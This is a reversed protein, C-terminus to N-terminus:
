LGTETPLTVVVWISCLYFCLMICNLLFIYTNDYPCHPPHMKALCVGQTGVASIVIAWQLCLWCTESHCSDRGFETDYLLNPSLFAFYAGHDEALPVPLCFFSGQASPGPQVGSLVEPNRSPLGSGTTHSATAATAAWHWSLFPVMSHCPIDLRQVPSPLFLNWCGTFKETPYYLGFGAHRPWLRIWLPQKTAFREMALHHFLSQQFLSYWM